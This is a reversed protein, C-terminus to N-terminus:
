RRPPGAGGGGVIRAHSAVARRGGEGGPCSPVPERTSAVIKKDKFTREHDADSARGQDGKARWPVFLFEGEPEQPGLPHDRVGPADGYAPVAGGAAGSPGVLDPDPQAAPGREGAQSREGADM